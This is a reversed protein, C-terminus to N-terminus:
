VSRCVFESQYTRAHMRAHPHTYSQIHTRTHHIHIYPRAASPCISSFVISPYVSADVYNNKSLKISSNISFGVSLIISLHFMTIVSIVFASFKLGFLKRLFLIIKVIKTRSNWLEVYYICPLKVRNSAFVKTRLADNEAKRESLERILEDVDSSMGDIADM